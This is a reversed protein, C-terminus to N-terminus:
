GVEPVHGPGRPTCGSAPPTCLGAGLLGSETKMLTTLMEGGGETIKVKRQLYFSEPWPLRETEDNTFDHAAGGKARQELRTSSRGGLADRPLHGWAVGKDQIWPAQGGGAVVCQQSLSLRCPRCHSRIRCTQRKKGRLEM